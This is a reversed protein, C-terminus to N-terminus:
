GLLVGIGISYVFRGDDFNDAADGGDDFFWQYEVMGFIYTTKNVFFKVGAEPAAEFIDEVADGYIYGINAGIFPQWKDLDFHYDLFIRTSLIWDTGDNDNQVDVMGVDQRLGVELEKSLFYGLSGGINFAGGEFDKDNTGTGVLNLDWKKAEPQAMALTPLLAAVAAIFVLKRLM